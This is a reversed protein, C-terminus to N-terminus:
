IDKDGATLCWVGEIGPQPAPPELVQFVGQSARAIFGLRWLQRAYPHRDSLALRVAGLDGRELCHLLFLALMCPLDAQDAVVIDQITLEPEAQETEFVVFGRLEGGRVLQAVRFRRSPHDRFHWTLSARGKDGLIWGAKPVRAWLQDFREDFQDVVEIGFGRRMQLRVALSIMSRVPWCLVAALIKRGVLKKLRMAPNIPCVYPILEGATRWGVSDLSRRAAETPIVFACSGSLRQEIHRSLGALLQQGVGRGRLGEDLSIDGVVAVRSFVGNVWFARFIAAAM